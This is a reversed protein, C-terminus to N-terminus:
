LLINLHNNEVKATAQKICFLEEFVSITHLTKGHKINNRSEWVEHIIIQM